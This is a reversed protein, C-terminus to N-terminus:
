HWSEEYGGLSHQGSVESSYKQQITHALLRACYMSCGGTVPERETPYRNYVVRASQFFLFAYKKFFGLYVMILALQCCINVPERETPYRIFVVLVSQVFLFVYKKLFCVYVMILAAQCCINLFIPRVM